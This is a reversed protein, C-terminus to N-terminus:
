INLYWWAPLQLPDSSKCFCEFPFVTTSGQSETRLGTSIPWHPELYPGLTMIVIWICLMYVYAMFIPILSLLTVIM